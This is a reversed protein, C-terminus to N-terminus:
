NILLFLPVGEEEEEQSVPSGIFTLSTVKVNQRDEPELPM